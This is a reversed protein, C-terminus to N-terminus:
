KSWIKRTEVRRDQQNRLRIGPQSHRAGKILTSDFFDPHHAAPIILALRRAALAFTVNFTDATAAIAAHQRATPLYRPAIGDATGALWPSILELLLHRPLLLASM